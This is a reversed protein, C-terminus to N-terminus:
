ASGSNTSSLIPWKRTPSAIMTPSPSATLIIRAAISRPRALTVEHDDADAGVKAGRAPDRACDLTITLAEQRADKGVGLPRSGLAAGVPELGIGLAKGGLLGARLRETGPQPSTHEPAVHPHDIQWRPTRGHLEGSACKLPELRDGRRAAFRTDVHSDGILTRQRLREDDDRRNRTARGSAM